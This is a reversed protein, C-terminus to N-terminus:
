ASRTRRRRILDGVQRVVGETFARSGGVFRVRILEDARDAIFSEAEPARRLGARPALMLTGGLRGVAAGAAVAELPSGASVLLLNDTFAGERIGRQAWARATGYVTGTALREVVLGLERLRHEAAVSVASVGGALLVRSVELEDLAELTAAPVEGDTALLLPRPEVGDGSTFDGQNPLSTGEDAVPDRPHGGAAVPGAVLAHMLDELRGNGAIVAQPMPADDALEVAVARATAAASTGALRVIETVGASRLGAEVTLSLVAEDGVLYARDAGLRTVEAGVAAPLAAPASLLVPADRHVALPTGLVGGLLDGVIVVQSAGEPFAAESVAVSTGFADEGTLRSISPLSIVDRIETRAPPRRDFAEALVRGDFGGPPPNLGLLWAATPALDINRAQGPDEDTVALETHPRVTQARVAPWGGSVVVPIPLTTPHGHNGPIPNAFQEPVDLAHGLRWGPAVTVILDGVLDGALGWQPFVRGVWHREDGDDPNPRIYLAHEVGPASLAIERMRALRQGARPEDPSRLAYLSAGGNIAAQVEDRLLEDAQFRPALNVGRDRRSWDMSHDATVMFVTSGWRGSRELEAVLRALQADARQLTALRLAPLAGGTLGGTEDFHGMRDVDGLNLFLFDPDLERSILVAETGTEEDPASDLAVPVVVVPDNVHSADTEGDGTRDHRCLDAVYTKAGIAASTLGPAQRALLSFISDAKLYRPDDSPRAPLTPVANGPIGHRTPRMGTIMSAHNTSTEAVMDARGETYFTGRQALAALTPMLEVEDPRLGDVVVLYVRVPSTDGAAPRAWVSPLALAASGALTSRLFDRRGIHLM